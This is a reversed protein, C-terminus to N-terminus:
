IVEVTLHFDNLMHLVTLNRLIVQEEDILQVYVVWLSIVYSLSSDNIVVLKIWSLFFPQSLIHRSYNVMVDVVIAVVVSEFFLFAV